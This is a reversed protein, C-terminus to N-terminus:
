IGEAALWENPEGAAIGLPRQNPIRQERRAEHHNAHHGRPSRELRHWQHYVGNSLSVCEAGAGHRLIPQDNTPRAVSCAPRQQWRSSLVGLPVTPGRHQRGIARPLPTKTRTRGDRQLPLALRQPQGDVPERERIALQTRPLQLRFTGGGLANTSADAYEAVSRNGLREPQVRLRASNAGVAPHHVRPVVPEPGDDAHRVPVDACRGWRDASVIDPERSQRVRVVGHRGVRVSVVEAVSRRQRLRLETGVGGSPECEEIEAQHNSRGFRVGVEAPIDKAYCEHIPKGSFRVLRTQQVLLRDHDPSAPLETAGCKGASHLRLLHRCHWPQGPPQLAPPTSPHRRASPPPVGYDRQM